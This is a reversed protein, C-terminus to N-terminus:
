ESARTLKCSFVSGDVTQLVDVEKGNHEAILVFTLDPLVQGDLKQKFTVTGVCNAGFQVPATTEMSHSAIMGGISMTSTATFNGDGKGEGIGLLKSPLLPQDLGLRLFGDCAVVYTGRVSQGSCQQAQADITLVVAPLLLFLVIAVRTKM